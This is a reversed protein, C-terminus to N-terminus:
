CEVQWWEINKLQKHAGYRDSPWLLTTKNSAFPEWGRRKRKEWKGKWGKARDNEWLMFEFGYFNRLSGWRTLITVLSCCGDRQRTCHHTRRWRSGTSGVLMFFCSGNGWKKMSSRRRGLVTSGWGNKYERM